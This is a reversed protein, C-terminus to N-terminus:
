CETKFIKMILPRFKCVTCNVLRYSQLVLCQILITETRNHVHRNKTSDEIKLTEDKICLSFLDNRRRHVVQKSFMQLDILNNLISEGTIKIAFRNQRSKSTSSQICLRSGLSM